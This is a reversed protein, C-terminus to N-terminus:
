GIEDGEAPRYENWFEPLVQDIKFVLGKIAQFYTKGFASVALGDNPHGESRCTLTFTHNGNAPNYSWSQKYGSEVYSAIFDMQEDPSMPWLRLEERHESTLQVNVFTVEWSQKTKPKGPTKPQNKAM